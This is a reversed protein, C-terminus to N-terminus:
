LFEKTYDTGSHIRKTQATVPFTAKNKSTTVTTYRSPIIHGHKDFGSNHGNIIKNTKDAQRKDSPKFGLNPTRTNIKPIKLLDPLDFMYGGGGM